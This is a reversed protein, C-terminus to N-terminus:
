IAPLNTAERVLRGITHLNIIFDAVQVDRRNHDLGYSVMRKLGLSALQGNRSESNNRRAYRAKWTASGYPVDRALRASGDPFRRGVSAARGWPKSPDLYPCGVIPEVPTGEKLRQRRCLQACVYKAERRQYDYGNPRLRYGHPCLPYGQGDYGRRLCVTPDQDGPDARLEVMRLAGLDYIRDLCDAYGVAADDLWEGIRQNPFKAQLGDVRASFITREDANAAFLNSQETWAVSLADDILRDAVSRYGFVDIGKSTRNSTRNSAAKGSSAQAEAGSRDGGPSHKHNHGQYHILRAEPDLRSAYQCCAQCASTDCACGEGGKERARCARRAVAVGPELASTAAQSSPAPDLSPALQSPRERPVLAAQDAGPKSAQDPQPQYCPACAQLCTPRSRAPHLQGDQSLSM